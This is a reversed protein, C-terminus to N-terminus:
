LLLSQHVNPNPFLFHSCAIFVECKQQISTHKFVHSFGHNKSLLRHYSPGYYKLNCVRDFSKAIQQAYLDGGGVKDKHTTFYIASPKNLGERWFKKNM